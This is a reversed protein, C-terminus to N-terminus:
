TKKGGPKQRNEFQHDARTQNYAFKEAIAGGLDLKNYGAFDMIRIVLDALEVEMNTRHPLHKDDLNKRWGEYAEALETGMLMMQEGVNREIRAGTEVDHYWGAALCSSYITGAMENIIPAAQQITHVRAITTADVM